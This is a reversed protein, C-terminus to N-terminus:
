LLGLGVFLIAGIWGTRWAIVLAALLMATPILHMGLAFATQWFGLGEDFVDLAFISVFAAFLICLIRPSWFLVNKATRNM